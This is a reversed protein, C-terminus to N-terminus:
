NNKASGVEGVLPEQMLVELFHSALQNRNALGSKRFVANSHAKVTGVKKGTLDGIEANSMGKLIFLAVDTESPTLQWKAFDDEILTNFSASAVRLQSQVQGIEGRMQRLAFVGHFVSILLTLVLAVELAERAEWSIPERVVPLFSSLMYLLVSIASVAQVLVLLGM